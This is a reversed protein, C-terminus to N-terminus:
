SQRSWAAQPDMTKSMQQVEKLVKFGVPQEPCAQMLQTKNRNPRFILHVRCFGIELFVSIRINSRGGLICQYQFVPGSAEPMLDTIPSSYQSVETLNGISVNCLGGFNSSM